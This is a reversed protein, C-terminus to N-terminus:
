LTLTSCESLNLDQVKLPTWRFLSSHETTKPVSMFNMKEVIDASSFLESRNTTPLSRTSKLFELKAMEHTFSQISTIM